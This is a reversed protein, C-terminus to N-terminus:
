TKAVTGCGLHEPLKYPILKGLRPPFTQLVVEIAVHNKKAWLKWSPDGFRLCCLFSWCQPKQSQFSEVLAWVIEPQHNWVMQFINTLIPIKGVHPALFYKFGGGLNQGWLYNSPKQCGSIQPVVSAENAGVAAFSGAMARGIPLWEFCHQFRMFCLFTGALYYFVLHLCRFHNFPHYLFTLLNVFQYLPMVFHFCWLSNCRVFSVSAFIPCPHTPHHVRGLFPSRVSGITMTGEVFRCSCLASNAWVLICPNWKWGWTSMNWRLCFYFTHLAHHIIIIICCLLHWDCIFLIFM